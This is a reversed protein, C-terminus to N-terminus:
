ETAETPETDRRRSLRAALKRWWAREQELQAVRQELPLIANDYWATLTAIVKMGMEADNERKKREAASESLLRKGISGKTM